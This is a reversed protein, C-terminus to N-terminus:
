FIHIELHHTVKVYDDLFMTRREIWEACSPSKKVLFFYNGIRPQYLGAICYDANNCHMGYQIKVMDQPGLAPTHMETESFWFFVRSAGIDRIVGDPINTCDNEIDVGMLLSIADKPM